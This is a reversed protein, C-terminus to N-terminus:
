ENKMEPNLLLIKLQEDILCKFEAQSFLHLAEAAQALTENNKDARHVITSAVDYGIKPALLTIVSLNNRMNVDVQAHNLKLGRITNKSFSTMTDALLEISELINHIIVPRYTNLQLQGNSAALSVTLDNGFVQLCVMSLAECQTPNVKGPMISSGPENAPLKWENLGCRPGSGLLRFDNAIKFLTAALQKLSSSLRVLADEGSVAAYLNPHQIFPFQYQGALLAIAHQGFLEPANAGSGVATGGLALQYVPFLSEQIARKAATVQQEHALLLVGAKIPLADMLHTRGVTYFSDFESQKQSLERAMQELSPVLRELTQQAVVIHMATPFVDNSSQSMNIHDNPHLRAADSSIGKPSNDRVFANALSAVVENINMNTQTGSGTQWVRLPFQDYHEGNLIADCAHIIAEFQENSILELGHNVQACARKISVLADIFQNEFTHKGIAFYKLSLQTQKGWLEDNKNVSINEASDGQQNGLPAEKSKEKSNKTSM